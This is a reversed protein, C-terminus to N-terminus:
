TGKSMRPRTLTIIPLINLVNDLSQLYFDFNGHFKVLYSHYRMAKMTRIEKAVHASLHSGMADNNNRWKDRTKLIRRPERCRGPRGSRKM